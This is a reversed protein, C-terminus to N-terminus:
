GNRHYSSTEGVRIGSGSHRVRPFYMLEAAGAHRIGRAHRAHRRNELGIRRGAQRDHQGGCAADGIRQQRQNAGGLPLFVDRLPEVGDAIAVHVDGRFEAIRVGRGLENVLEVGVALVDAADQVANSQCAGRGALRAIQHGAEDLLKLMSPLDTDLIYAADQARYFMHFLGNHHVVGPNFVNLAEWANLPNPMLVPNAPHRTLKM